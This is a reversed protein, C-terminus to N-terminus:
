FVQPVGIVAQANSSEATWNIANSSSYVAAPLSGTPNLLTGGNGETIWTKGTWILRPNVNFFESTLLQGNINNFTAFDLSWTANLNPATWIYNTGAVKGAGEVVTAAQALAVTNTDNYAVNGSSVYNQPLASNTVTYSTGNLTGLNNTDAYLTYTVGSILFLPTPNLAAVWSSLIAPTATQYTGTSTTINYINNFKNVSVAVSALTGLNTTNLAQQSIMTWTSGNTSYYLDGNAGGGVSSGQVLYTGNISGTSAVSNLPTSGTSNLTNSIANLPLYTSESNMLLGGNNLVMIYQSSNGMVTAYNVSEGSPLVEYNPAAINNANTIMTLKGFNNNNSGSAVLLNNGQSAYNTGNTLSQSGLIQSTIAPTTVNNIATLNTPGNPDILNGTPNAIPNTNVTGSSVFINNNSFYIGTPKQTSNLSEPLSIVQLVANTTVQSSNVIYYDRITKQTFGITENIYLNNNGNSGIFNVQAPVGFFNQLPDAASNFSIPSTGLWLNPNSSSLDPATMAAYVGTSLKIVNTFPQINQANAVQSWTLGDSSSYVTSAATYAYFMGDLYVISSFNSSSNIVNPTITGNTSITWVQTGSYMVFQNSGAVISANAITSGLNIKKFQSGQSNSLIFDSGDFALINNASAAIAILNNKTGSIYKNWTGSSPQTAVWLASEAISTNPLFVAVGQEASPTPAPTSSSSTGSNCAVAVISTSIALLLNRLILAKKM